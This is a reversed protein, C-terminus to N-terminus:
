KQKKKKLIAYVALFIVTASTIAVGAILGQPVFKYEVTHEGKPLKIALYANGVSCYDDKSIEVGDIRVTWGEDYPISSYLLCDKPATVTAKIYDEEFETIEAANQKLISYGENLADLDVRYASVSASGTDEFREGLAIKIEKEEGAKLKGANEIYDYSGRERIESFKFAECDADAVFTLTAFSKEAGESKKYEIVGKEANYRAYDLGEFSINTFRLPLLPSNAGSALRFWDNQVEFPNPNNINWNTVDNEVCFFLPLYYKNQYTTFKGDTFKKEFFAPEKGSTFYKIAHMMNNVPTQTHYYFANSNNSEAGLKNQLAAIKEYGMSTFSNVGYYNYCAPGNQVTVLYSEQRYFKESEAEETRNKLASFESYNQMYTKERTYIQFNGCDSFAVEAIICIFLFFTVTERIKKFRLLLLFVFYIAVFVLTFIFSQEEVVSAFHNTLLVLAVIIASSAIVKPLSLEDANAIIRYAMSLLVFCFIFSFRAPLDNPFHLGHWIFDLYNLVFSFYFFVLLAVYIIKEKLKIKKSFFFIPILILTLIGCYMNPPLIDFGMSFSPVSDIFLNKFFDFFSIYIEAKKPFLDSTASSFKLCLFVPLLAVASLCGLLLSAIGFSFSRDVFLNRKKGSKEFSDKFGYNSFYYVFYYIVSFICVMFGMYYNTILTLVLSAIYLKFSKENILKEIGLVVLPLFVVADLWMINFYYAVFWGSLAYLIGFGASLLGSGGRTKKLYFSFTAASFSAKAMIMAAIATPINDRGFLFIFIMSPSSLYNFFNGILPMGLGCRFSYFLSEGDVIRDYLETFFPCYQALLDHWLIIKEGFPKMEYLIFTVLLIAATIFFAVLSGYYMKLKNSKKEM